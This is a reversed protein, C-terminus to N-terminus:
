KGKLARIVACLCITCVPIGLIVVFFIVEGIFKESM